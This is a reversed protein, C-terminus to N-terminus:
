SEKSQMLKKAQNVWDKEEILGKFQMYEDIWDINDASFHAIQSYRYVGMNNLSAEIEANIGNIQQLDDKERVAEVDPYQDIHQEEEEETAPKLAVEEEILALKARLRALPQDITDTTPADDQPQRNAASKFPLASTSTAGQNAPMPTAAQNSPLSTTKQGSSTAPSSSQVPTKNELQQKPDRKLDEIEAQLRDNEDELIHLKVRWQNESAVLKDTHGHGRLLWGTFFGVAAALIIFLLIQFILYTM